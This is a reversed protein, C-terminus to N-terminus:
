ADIKSKKGTMCFCDGQNKLHLISKINIVSNFDLQIGLEVLGAIDPMDLDTTQGRINTISIPKGAWPIRLGGAM